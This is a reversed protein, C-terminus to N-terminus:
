FVLGVPYHTNKAKKPLLDEFDVNLHMENWIPWMELLWYSCLILSCTQVTASFPLLPLHLSFGNATSRLFRELFLSPLCGKGFSLSLGWQLPYPTARQIASVNPSINFVQIPLHVGSSPHQSNSFFDGETTGLPVQLFTPHSSSTQWQEASYM